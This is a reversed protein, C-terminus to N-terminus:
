VGTNKNKTWDRQKVQDWTKIITDELDIDQRYCFDCMYIFMDAIADKIAADHDENKRIGQARKLYAHNLEGLEEGIGLLPKWSEQIGFNKNSWEGVENQIEKIIM